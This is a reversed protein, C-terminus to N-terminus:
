GDAADILLSSEELQAGDKVPAGNTLVIVGNLVLHREPVSDEFRTLRQTRAQSSTEIIPANKIM